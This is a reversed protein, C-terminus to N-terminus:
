RSSTMGLSEELARLPRWGYALTPLSLEGLREADSDLIRGGLSEYFARATSNERFVWLYLSDAGASRLRAAAAAMLRRGHGRRWASPHVNLAVIESEFAADPAEVLRSWVFGVPRPPGADEHPVLAVDVWPLTESQALLGRWLLRRQEVGFRALVDPPMLAGYAEQWAAAHIEALAEADGPVVPRLSVGTM